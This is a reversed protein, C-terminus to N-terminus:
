RKSTPAEMGVYQRVFGRLFLRYALDVFGVICVRRITLPNM